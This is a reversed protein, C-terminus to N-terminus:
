NGDSGKRKKNEVAEEHKRRLVKEITKLIECYQEHSIEEKMFRHRHLIEKAEPSLLPWFRQELEEIVSSEGGVFRLAQDIWEMDRSTEQGRLRKSRLRYFCCLAFVILILTASWYFVVLDYRTSAQAIGDLISFASPDWPSVRSLYFGVRPTVITEYRKKEQFPISIPNIDCFSPAPRFCQVVLRIDVFEIGAASQSIAIVPDSALEVSGFKDGKKPLSIASYLIEVPRRKELRLVIPVLGGVRHGYNGEPFIIRLELPFLKDEGSKARDSDAIQGNPGAVLKSLANFYSIVQSPGVLTLSVPLVITVLALVTIIAVISGARKRLIRM